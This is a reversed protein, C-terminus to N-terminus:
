GVPIGQGSLWEAMLQEARPDDARIADILPGAGRSRLNAEVLAFFAPDALWTSPVDHCVAGKGCVECTGESKVAITEPWENEVRCPECYFM